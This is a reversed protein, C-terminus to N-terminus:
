TRLGHCLFRELFGELEDDDMDNWSRRVPFREFFVDTVEEETGYLEIGFDRAWFDSYMYFYKDTETPKYEALRSFAVFLDMDSELISGAGKCSTCTM